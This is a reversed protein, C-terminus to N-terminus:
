CCGSSAQLNEQWAALEGAENDRSELLEADPYYNEPYTPCVASFGNERKLIHGAFDKEIM